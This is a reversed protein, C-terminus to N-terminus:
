KKNGKEEHFNKAEKRQQQYVLIPCKMKKLKYTIYNETYKQISNMQCM